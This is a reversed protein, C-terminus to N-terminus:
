NMTGCSDEKLLNKFDEWKKEHVTEKETNLEIIANEYKFIKQIEENTFGLDQSLENIKMKILAKSCKESEEDGLIDGLASSTVILESLKYSTNRLLEEKAYIENKTDELKDLTMKLNKIDLEKLRNLVPILISLLTLMGLLTVYTFQNILSFVLLSTFTIFGITSVLLISLTQM